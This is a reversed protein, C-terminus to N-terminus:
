IMMQKLFFDDLTKLIEERTSSKLLYGQPNLKKVRAISERTAIGTLFIVPISATEPLSRIMELIEAGDVIPMEYDLLILDVQHKALWTVAQMGNVAFEMNYHAGLWECVTQAYMPDDDIVLIREKSRDEIATQSETELERVLQYMDVPRDMWIHEKFAPIVKFYSDRSRDEGILIAKRRRDRLIDSIRVLNKLKEIDGLASDQLYLIFCDTADLIAKVEEPDDKILTVEFDQEKLGKELSKVVVSFQYSVITVNGAM